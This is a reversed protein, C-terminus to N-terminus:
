KGLYENNYVSWLYPYGYATYVLGDVSKSALATSWRSCLTFKPVRERCLDNLETWAEMRKAEDITYACRDVLEEIAYDGYWETGCFGSVGVYGTRPDVPQLFRKPSPNGGLTFITDFEGERVKASFGAADFPCLELTIGVKGLMNQLVEAIPQAFSDTGARYLCNVTFGDAFGAETLLKKAADPDYKIFNKSEDTVPTNLANSPTCLCANSVDGLGRMAIDVMMQYDISMAIAQRVKLQNLPEHNSNFVFAYYYSATGVLANIDDRGSAELIYTASMETSLDYDGAEIGMARTNADNVCTVDIYKYYPKKGWYDERREAYVYMNPKWDVKFYPGTGSREDDKTAEKGGIKEVSAQVVQSWATSTMELPLFPYSSKVAVDITYDDIVKTNDIDIINFFTAIAPNNVQWDITYYMDNATYPDGMISTVGKRISCRMTTDDIWEYKEVLWPIPKSNIADWVLPTEYFLQNPYLAGDDQGGIYQLSSFNAFHFAYKLRATDSPHVEMNQIDSISVLDYLGTTGEMEVAAAAGEAPKVTTDTTGAPKASPQTAAPKSGSDTGSSQDQKTEEKKACAFLSFVMLLAMILAIAKKM